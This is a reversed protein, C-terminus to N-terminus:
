RRATLEYEAALSAPPQRSPEDEQSNSIGRVPLTVDPLDHRTDEEFLCYTVDLVDLLAASMDLLPGLEIRRAVMFGDGIVLKRLGLISGADAPVVNRTRLYALPDLGGDFDNGTRNALEATADELVTTGSAFLDLLGAFIAGKRGLVHALDRARTRAQLVRSVITLEYLRAQGILDAFRDWPAAVGDSRRVVEIDVELKQLDEGAALVADLHDALLLVEVPTSLRSLAM